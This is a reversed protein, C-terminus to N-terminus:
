YSEEMVSLTSTDAGTITMGQYVPVQKGGNDTLNGNTNCSTFLMACILLLFTIALLWRTMNQQLKM